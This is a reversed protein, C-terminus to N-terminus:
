CKIWNIIVYSKCCVYVGLYLLMNLNEIFYVIYFKLNGFNVMVLIM